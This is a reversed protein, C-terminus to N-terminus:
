WTAVAVREWENTAVCIYLFGSDYAAQGATGAAIASAPVGVWAVLSGNTPLTVNTAGIQTLTLAFNGATTFANATTLAGGTILNGGISLNGAMTMTRDANGIAFTLARNSSADSTNAALSLAYVLGEPLISLESISLVSGGSITKNTLTEEGARTALMGETPVTVSTGATVLFEADFGGALTFKGFFSVDGALYLQRGAEDASFVIDATDPVDDLCAITGSKNQVTLTRTTETTFGDVEFKLLKTADASGAVLATTDAFPATLLSEFKDRIANKSAGDLNANWTTANYAVDSITPIQSTTAVTGSVPLTLATSSTATLTIPFAGITEFDDGFVVDGGFQVNRNADDVYLTLTRAASLSEASVLRLDFAALSSRIGVVTKGTIAEAGALTALQGDYNPLTFVRQTGTTNASIVFRALKTPDGTARILATDDHFPAGSALGSLDLNLARYGAFDFDGQCVGQKIVQRANAM